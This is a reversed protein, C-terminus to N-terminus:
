RALLSPSVIDSERRVNGWAAALRTGVLSAAEHPGAEPDLLPCAVEGNADVFAPLTARVLSPAAKLRDATDSSLRKSLGRLPRVVVGANGTRVLFRGDWVREAGPELALPAADSRGRERTAWVVDREAQMQAGALTAEFPDGTRWRALLRELAAARPPRERGSACVLLAALRAKDLVAGRTLRLAGWRESWSPPDATSQVLEPQVGVTTALANRARVRAFREDANAPDDVWEAGREVLLRRLESRRAELLPRFVFVGRGAPWVPSPSWPQLTGVPTGRERMWVNEAADDATHGFLVARVGRARAAEAVLAHRAARAAAPLGVDPKPDNWYLRVPEAGLARAQEAARATWGASDPHM